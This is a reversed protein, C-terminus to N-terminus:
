ALMRKGPVKGAYELPHSWSPGRLAERAQLMAIM